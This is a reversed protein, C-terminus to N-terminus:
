GMIRAQISLAPLNINSKNVTQNSQLTLPKSEKSRNPVFERRATSQHLMSDIKAIIPIFFISMNM